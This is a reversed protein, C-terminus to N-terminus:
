MLTGTFYAHPFHTFNVSIERFGFMDFVGKRRVVHRIPQQLLAYYQPAFAFMVTASTFYRQHSSRIIQQLETPQTLKNLVICIM